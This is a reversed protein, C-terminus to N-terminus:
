THIKRSVKTKILGYLLIVLWTDLFALTREVKNWGIEEDIDKTLVTEVEGVMTWKIDVELM